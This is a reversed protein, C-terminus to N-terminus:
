LILGGNTITNRLNIEKCFVEWIYIKSVRGSLRGQSSWETPLSLAYYICPGLNLGRGGCFFFFSPWKTWLIQNAVKVGYIDEFLFTREPLYFSMNCWEASYFHKKITYWFLRTCLLLRKHHVHKNTLQLLIDFM